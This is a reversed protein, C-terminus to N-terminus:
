CLDPLIASIKVLLAMASDGKITIRTGDAITILANAMTAKPVLQVFSSNIEPLSKQSAKFWKSRWSYLTSEALQYKKALQAVSIETQTIETLIREKLEPSVRYSGARSPSM